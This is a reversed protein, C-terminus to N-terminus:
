LLYISILASVATLSLATIMAKKSEFIRFLVFIVSMYLFGSIIVNIITNSFEM